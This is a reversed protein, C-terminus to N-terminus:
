VIRFEAKNKTSALAALCGSNDLFIAQQGYRSSNLGDSLGSTDYSESADGMKSFKLAGGADDADGTGSISLFHAALYMEIKKLIADSHGCGLLHENVFVNATDIFNNDIVDDAVSTAIIEKVEVHSVRAM